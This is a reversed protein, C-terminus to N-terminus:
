EETEELDEGDDNDVADPGPVAVGEDGDIDIEDEDMGELAQQANNGPHAQLWQRRAETVAEMLRRLEDVQSRFEPNIMLFPNSLAMPGFDNHIKAYQLNFQRTAVQVVNDKVAEHRVGEEDQLEGDTGLVAALDLILDGSAKPWAGPELAAIGHRQLCAVLAASSRSLPQLLRHVPKGPLCNNPKGAVPAPETRTAQATFSRLYSLLSQGPTSESALAPRCILGAIIAAAVLPDSRHMDALTVGKIHACQVCTYFRQDQEQVQVKGILELTVFHAPILKPLCVDHSGGQEPFPYTDSIFSYDGDPRNGEPVFGCKIRLFRWPYSPAGSQYDAQYVRVSVSHVLTVPHLLEYSLYEVADETPSGTSSWFRTECANLTEVISQKPHDTSSVDCARAVVSQASNIRQLSYIARPWSGRSSLVTFGSSALAINFQLFKGWVLSSSAAAALSRSLLRCCLLENTRLYDLVAILVETRLDRWLMKVKDSLRCSVVAYRFHQAYESQQGKTDHGM